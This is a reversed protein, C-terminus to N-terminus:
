KPIDKIRKPVKKLKYKTNGVIIKDEVLKYLVPQVEEKSSNTLKCIWELTMSELPLFRFLGEIKKYM